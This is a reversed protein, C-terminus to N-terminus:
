GIYFSEELKAAMSWPVGPSVSWESCTWKKLSSIGFPQYLFTKYGGHTEFFGEIYDKQALTLGDWKLEVMKRIYNIGDPVAQSYGDGFEAKLLKIQPKISGGSSPAVTPAFTLFAM